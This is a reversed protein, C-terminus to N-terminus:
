QRKEVVDIQLRQLLRVTAFSLSNYTRSYSDHWFCFLFHVRSPTLQVCFYTPEPHRKKEPRELQDESQLVERNCM